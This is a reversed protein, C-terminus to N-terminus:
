QEKACSRCFPKFPDSSRGVPIEEVKDEDVWDGCGHCQVQKIKKGRLEHKKQDYTWKITSITEM